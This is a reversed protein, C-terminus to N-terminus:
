LKADEISQQHPHVNALSEYSPPSVKQLEADDEAISSTTSVAPTFVHINDDEKKEQEHDGPKCLMYVVKDFCSKKRPAGEVENTAYKKWMHIPKIWWNVGILICIM